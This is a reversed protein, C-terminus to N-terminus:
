RLNFVNVILFCVGIQTFLVGLVKRIYDMKVIRNQFLPASLPDIVLFPQPYVVTSYTPQQLSSQYTLVPTTIVRGDYTSPSAQMRQHMPGLPQLQMGSMPVHCMNPSVTRQQQYAPSLRHVAMGDMEYVEQMPFASMNEGCRSSCGNGQHPSSVAFLHLGSIARLAALLFSVAALLAPIPVRAAFVPLFSHSLHVLVSNQRNERERKRESRSHISYACFRRNWVRSTGANQAATRVASKEGRM